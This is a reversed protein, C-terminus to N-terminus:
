NKVTIFGGFPTNAAGLQMSIQHDGDALNPPLQINLQYLGATGPSLGAYLVNAAELVTNGLTVVAKETTSTLGTAPLGPAIAPFTGGFSVGYIILYDGSKAPVFTLGPILGEAAVYAGTVANLAIVPNRGNATKVWYLFEPTAAQVGVAQAASKLENAAGCNTLVQVNVTTGPQVDPTQFNIQTPTVLTLFGLQSGVQVCVGALKTPLRGQVFDGEQVQQFTGEPAFNSGYITAFGGSSIQGVAPISGGAGVVGGPSIAPLPVGTNATVRFQASPIGSISATIVVPGPTSGLTLGVGAVGAPDTAGSAASLKADGSTVAFNVAIGAVPVGARFAVQVGLPVPLAAGTTGTQSDGSAVTLRTPSNLTLKRIRSNYTDAVLIDGAADLSLGKPYFLSGNTAIGGDGFGTALPNGAIVSLDGAPTLKAILNLRSLAVILNGASDIVMGGPTDIYTSVGKGSVYCCTSVGLVTQILGSAVKRIRVNSEDSIFLNGSNDVAIQRPRNLQASTAINGDGSFGSSGNGAVTTITGDAAAIRRVRHASSDSVYLNGQADIALGWPFKFQASTALGGDGTDGSTGRGAITSIVGMPNIRRVVYNGSDTFYLNGAADLVLASPYCLNAAVAARTDGTYACNGSGAITSIIGAPTVKRIRHNDTDAIFMNGAADSIVSEPLHMLAATATGNDGAFHTRGAITTIIGATVKRIRLNYEDAILINGASNIAVSVPYNLEAATAPGGDGSFGATGVGAVTRITNGTIVRVRNFLPDAVYLNGAGDVALGVTFGIPANIALAGDILSNGNGAITSIVGNPSLKRIDYAEGIYLNGASDLALSQPFALQAVPGSNGDGAYGLQGNGAVTTVNGNTSIKRVRNNFTDAVFINGNGDVAIGNM